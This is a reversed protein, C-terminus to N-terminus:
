DGLKLNNLQSSSLRIVRPQGPAPNSTVIPAGGITTAANGNIRIIKPAGGGEQKIQVTQMKPAILTKIQSTAHSRVMVPPQTDNLIRKGAETLSLTQGGPNMLNVAASHEDDEVPLMKIGFNSLIKMSASNKANNSDSAVVETRAAEPPVTITETLEYQDQHANLEATITRTANEM